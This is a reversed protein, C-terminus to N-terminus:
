MGAKFGARGLFRSLRSELIYDRPINIKLADLPNIETDGYLFLTKCTVAKGACDLYARATPPKIGEPPAAARKIAGFKQLIPLVATHFSHADESSVGLTSTHSGSIEALLPAATRTFNQGVMHITNDTIFYGRKVGPITRFSGQEARLVPLGSDYDVSIMPPPPEDTVYAWRPENDNMCIEIHAGNYIEFFEDATEKTLPLYRSYRWGYGVSNYAALELYGDIVRSILRIVRRSREDFAQPSHAFELDRGYKVIRSNKVNDLLRAIDQIIYKKNRGIFFEARAKSHREIILRPYLSVTGDAGASDELEELYASEFVRVLKEDLVPVSLSVGATTKAGGDTARFLAAIIHSCAGRWVTHHSCRCMHGSITSPPKIFVKVHHATEGDFVTMDLTEIGTDSDYDSKPARVGGKVYLDYGRVFVDRATALRYVDQKTIKSQM